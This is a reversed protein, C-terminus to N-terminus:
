ILGELLIKANKIDEIQQDGSIEREIILTKDYGVEKLRPILKEFNVKGDGIKKEEGLEKGDVPYIGDKAHVDMVYKGFVDLADVPNAKGYLILNAPDLNIGLNDLGIDQITRLLTVPTEQGTEFLFNQENDKCYQAVERIACVLSHYEMTNPYEPLFGIKKAFDSGKKLDKIRENRYDMPVLGLTVPGEMFDWVRPGSWGCWFTSITIGYKKSAEIIMEAIEDTFLEFKWAVVQCCDFGYDKVQKFRADINADDLKVVVGLKM